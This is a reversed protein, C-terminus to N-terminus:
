LPLLINPQGPNIQYRIFGSILTGCYPKGGEGIAYASANFVIEGVRESSGNLLGTNYADTLEPAAPLRMVAAMIEDSLRSATDIFPEDRNATYANIILELQWLQQKYRATEFTSSGSWFNVAPLDQMMFPTLQAREISRMPETYGNAVTIFAFRPELLDLLQKAASDM